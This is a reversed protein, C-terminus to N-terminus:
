DGSLKLPRSAAAAIVAQALEPFQATKDLFSSAGEGLYRKRYAPGSSNSFVVFATSPVAAHLAKLVDLGSGGELHVDLVVVDPRFRLIGEICDRPSAASGVVAIQAADLMGAIRSRMPQSDEALFVKLPIAANSPM